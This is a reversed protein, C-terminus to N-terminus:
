NVKTSLKLDPNLNFSLWAAALHALSDVAVILFSFLYINYVIFGFRMSSVIRLAYVFSAGPGQWWRNGCDSARSSRRGRGRGGNHSKGYKKSNLNLFEWIRSIAAYDFVQENINNKSQQQRVTDTDAAIYRYRYRHIYTNHNNSQSDRQWLWLEGKETKNNKKETANSTVYAM